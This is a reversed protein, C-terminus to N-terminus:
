NKPTLNDVRKPQEVNFKDKTDKIMQSIQFTISAGTIEKRRLLEKHDFYDIRVGTM